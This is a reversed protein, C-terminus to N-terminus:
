ETSPTMWKMPGVASQYAVIWKDKRKLQNLVLAVSQAIQNPYPDGEMIFYVPLGHASFILYFDDLSEGPKLQEHVRDVFGQIYDPHLYYLPTPLFQLQPYIGEAAKKLYYLNSGTTASSYHPYMSLPLLYKKNAQKTEAITQEPLPESYNFSFTLSFGRGRKKLERRLAETQAQTSSFLPSGGGILQYREESAKGRFTVLAWAFLPQLIKSLPFRILRTDNFLRSQFARVDANTKPVGMNLLAVMVDEDAICSPSRNLGLDINETNSNKM